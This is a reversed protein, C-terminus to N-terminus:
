IGRSPSASATTCIRTRATAPTRRSGSPLDDAHLLIPAGTLAALAPAGNVHDNHAHTCIIALM